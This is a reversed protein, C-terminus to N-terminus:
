VRAAARARDWSGFYKKAQQLLAQYSDKVARYNLAHGERRWRKIESLVKAPTWDRRKKIGPYPIGLSELFDAWGLGLRKHVFSRLDSPVDRALLSRRRAVRETVWDVARQRDWDGRQMKHQAPDFGAARLARAWSRPFHKIAACHLFPYHRQIHSAHLPVGDAALARIRDIVKAPSWRRVGSVEEYNLGAKRVAAEWTGFYRRGAEYLRVPVCRRTLRKGTRHLRQIEAVLKAPTWHRGQKAWFDEKAISIKQRSKRCMAFALRFRRKYDNIPHDGDYGHINRLHLATIARFDRGCHQCQIRHLALDGQRAM